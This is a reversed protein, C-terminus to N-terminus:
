IGTRTYYYSTGSSELILGEDLAYVKVDWGYSTCVLMNQEDQLGQECTCNTRNGIYSGNKMENVSVHYGDITLVRKINNDTVETWSGQISTLWEDFSEAEDAKNSENKGVSFVTYSYGLLIVIGIVVIAKGLNGM